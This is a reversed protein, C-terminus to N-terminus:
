GFEEPQALDHGLRNGVPALHDHEGVESVHEVAGGVRESALDDALDVAGNGGTLPLREDVPEGFMELRTYEDALDFCASNAQVDLGRRHFGLVSSCAIARLWRM